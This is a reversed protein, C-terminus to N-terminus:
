NKPWFVPRNTLKTPPLVPDLPLIPRHPSYDILNEVIKARLIIIFFFKIPLGFGICLQTGCYIFYCNKCIISFQGVLFHIIDLFIGDCETGIIM